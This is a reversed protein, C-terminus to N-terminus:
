PETFNRCPKEILRFMDYPQNPSDPIITTLEEEMRGPLDTPTFFPPAEMNNTPLFSLLYRVEELAQRGDSSIFHTVGSVTGHSKAGGLEAFTVDEGTVTKIVDPGTIFLHSTGDVQYVFDTMAPSYVAGGACPGMIVSIQPIMGSAKVNRSFIHGYAHLSQVGEQIRAGGSDKLGVLPAGTQMALDMVKCIKDSVLEGLSGGFVTFDEAFVFVTRGDVLEPMGANPQALIPAGTVQAMRGVVEVMREPGTSCNAGVAFAGMSALVNAATAPDTGTPTVFTEDFTMTIMVPLGTAERAALLAAKAERLDTMTEILIFDVGGAALVEAQAHFSDYADWFSLDGLPEVLKGTPGMDGAVLVGDRAAQRALRVGAANLEKVRESLGVAALKISTGGFTNTCIVDALPVYARHIGLVEDAHEVNLLELAHSGPVAEQLMTGMGGEFIVVRGDLFAQLETHTM